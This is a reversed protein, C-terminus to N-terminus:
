KGKLTEEVGLVVVIDEYQKPTYVVEYSDFYKALVQAESEIKVFLRTKDQLVNSYDGITEVSYGDSTLMNATKTALGKTNSGNLVSIVYESKEKTPEYITNEVVVPEIGLFVKDSLIKAEEENIYFCSKKGFYGDTGPLTYTKINNKDALLAYQAYKPMDTVGIDTTVYKYYTVVLTPLTTMINEKSLLQNIAEKLFAQQTRIRGIDGDPYGKFESGPNGKRFRILQEAKDGNLLQPGPYLDIHLNQWNDDYVMRIPVDFYVGDMKDILYRFSETDVAVYNDITTNLISSVEDKLYLLGQDVDQTYTVLETLKMEGSTPMIPNDQTSYVEDIVEQPMQVYTDRPISVLEVSGDKTNLNAVVMIDTHYSVKDLGILLINLTDKEPIFVDAEPTSSNKIVTSKNTFSFYFYGVFIAIALLAVLLVVSLFLLFPNKRKKKKPTNFQNDVPKKKNSSSNIYSNNKNKKNNTNLKQASQKKSSEVYLQQKRSYSPKNYNDPM